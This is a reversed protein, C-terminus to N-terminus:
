AYPDVTPLDAEPAYLKLRAMPVIMAATISKILMGPVFLVAGHWIADGISLAESVRALWATGLLLILMHAGVFVPLCRLFRGGWGRECCLGAMYAAPLFGVLYGGTTGLLYAPGASWMAFVPLGAMGELLYAAVALTGRKSGLTGAVLLVALTQLTLPVPVSPIRIQAAIAILLSGGVILLGDRLVNVSASGVQPKATATKM